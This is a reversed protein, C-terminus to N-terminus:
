GIDIKIMKLKYKKLIINFISHKLFFLNMRYSINTFKYIHTIIYVTYLNNCM